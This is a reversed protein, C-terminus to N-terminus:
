RRWRYRYQCPQIQLNAIQCNWTPVPHPLCDLYGFGDSPDGIAGAEHDPAEHGYARRGTEDVLRYALTLLVQGDDGIVRSTGTDSDALQDVGFQDALDDRAMDAGVGFGLPLHQGTLDLDLQHGLACQCLTDTGAAVAKTPHQGRGSRTRQDLLALLGKLDVSARKKELFRELGLKSEDVGLLGVVDAIQSIRQRRPVEIRQHGHGSTNDHCLSLIDHRDPHYRGIGDHRGGHQDVMQDQPLPAMSSFVRIALRTAKSSFSPSRTLRPMPRGVKTAAKTGLFASIKKWDSFPMTPMNAKGSSPSSASSRVSAPPPGMPANGPAAVKSLAIDKPRM